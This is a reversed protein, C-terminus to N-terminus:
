SSVDVEFIWDDLIFTMADLTTAQHVIISYSGARCVPLVRSQTVKLDTLHQGTSCM